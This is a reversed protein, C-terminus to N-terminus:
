AMKLGKKVPVGVEFEPLGAVQGDEGGTLMKIGVLGDESDDMVAVAIPLEEGAILAGLVAPDDGKLIHDHPVLAQM